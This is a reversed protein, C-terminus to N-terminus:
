QRVIEFYMLLVLIAIRVSNVYVFPGTDNSVPGSTVSQIGM